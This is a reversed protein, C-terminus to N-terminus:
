KTLKPIVQNEDFICYTGLGTAHYNSYPDSDIFENLFIKQDQPIDGTVEEDELLDVIKREENSISTHTLEFNLMDQDAIHEAHLPEALIKLKAGTVGINESM